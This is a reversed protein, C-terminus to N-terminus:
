YAGRGFFVVPITEFLIELDFLLSHNEAYYLDLLIMERFKVDSRGSIQWLGTMGPKVMGREKVAEWFELSETANEFDHPPLPRPGVLSMDGMLVNFLQPLEDISLKRIIRGVRTVRPDDKLKFLAGDSENFDMLEQRLQEANTVMSRFKIFDFEKGNKIASRRQLFFFPWGSEILIALSTFIFLPALFTIMIASVLVDFVRKIFNRMARIKYREPSSITIGAIDYIRSIKLIEETQSSVIKVKVSTNCALERLFSYGNLAFDDSPIFIRDINYEAIVKKLESFLFRPVPVAHEKVEKSIFGKVRYGLETYNDFRAYLRQSARGVDVILVNHIGFGKTQFFLSIRRLILRALLLLVPLSLAFTLASQKGIFTQSFSNIALAILISLIIARAVILNQLRLSLHYSGRYIGLMSAIALYIATFASLGIILHHDPTTYHFVESWKLSFIVFGAGWISVIDLFESLLIFVFRWNRRLM